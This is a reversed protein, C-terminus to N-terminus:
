PERRPDEELEYLATTIKHVWGAAILQHLAYNVQQDNLGTRDKLHKPNARGEELVELVWEENRTPEYDENAMPPRQMSM